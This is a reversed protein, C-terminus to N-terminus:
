LVVALIVLEDIPDILDEFLDFVDETIDFIRWLVLGETGTIDAGSPTKFVPKDPTGSVVAFPRGDLDITGSLAGGIDAVDVSFSSAGHRVSLDVTNHQVGNRKEARVEGSVEFARSAISLEYSVDAREVGGTNQGRVDIEFELKDREDQLFGAVTVHGVGGSGDLTTQYDLVTRSGEVVVVRLAVGATGDGLDMLDAHGTPKTPDPEAGRPEYTIFRVGNSPAGTRAPDIVWQHRAADYVFTKGRNSTSILPVSAPPDAMQSAVGAMAAAFAAPDGGGAVELASGAQAAGVAAPGLMARDMRTATMQFNKWGTSALVHDMASYDAMAALADLGSGPGNPDTECGAMMAMLAMPLASRRLANKRNM